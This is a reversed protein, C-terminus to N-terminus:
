SYGWIEQKLEAVGIEKMHPHTFTHNGIEHGGEYVARAVDPYQEVNRGIMFFTATIDYKDLIELIKLTFIPHPGDDFSLAIRKGDRTGHSFGSKAGASLPMGSLLFLCLLWAIGRKM